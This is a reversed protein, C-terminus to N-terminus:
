HILILNPGLVTISTKWVNHQIAKHSKRSWSLQYLYLIAQYSTHVAVNHPLGVWANMNDCTLGLAYVPSLNSFLQLGESGRYMWCLSPAFFQVSVSIFLTAETCTCSGACKMKPWNQQIEINLLGSRWSVNPSKQLRLLMVRSFLLRGRTGKHAVHLMLCM